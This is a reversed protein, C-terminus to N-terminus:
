VGFQRLHHDLHKWAFFGNQERSMNGLAPHSGFRFSPEKSCFDRVFQLLAAKDTEFDVPATGEGSGDQRFPKLTPTNPKWDKETLLMWRLMPSLFAPVVPKVQRLHLSVRLPDATHCLMQNVTMKGWLPKTDANLRAIRQEVSQQVSPDFLNHKM